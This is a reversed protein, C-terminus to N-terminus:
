FLTIGSVPIVTGASSQSGGEYNRLELLLSQKRQLLDHVAEQHLSNDALVGLKSPDYGRVTDCVFILLLWNTIKSSKLTV